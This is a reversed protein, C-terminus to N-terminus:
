QFASAIEFDVYHELRPTYPTQVMRYQRALAPVKDEVYTKLESMTIRADGTLDAKGDLGELIAYTFIGHGLRSDELSYEVGKPASLSWTARVSINLM